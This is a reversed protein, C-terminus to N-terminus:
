VVVAAVAVGAVAAVAAAAAAVCTLAKRWGPKDAQGLDSNEGEGNNVGPIIAPLANGELVLRASDGEGGSRM